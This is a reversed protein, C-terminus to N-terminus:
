LPTKRSVVGGQQAVLGGFTSTLPRFDSQSFKRNVAAKKKRGAVTKLNLAINGQCLSTNNNNQVDAIRILKKAKTLM